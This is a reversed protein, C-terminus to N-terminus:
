KPASPAPPRPNRDKGTVANKIERYGESVEYSAYDYYRLHDSVVMLATRWLIFNEDTCMLLASERNVREGAHGTHATNRGMLGQGSLGPGMGHFGLSTMNRNMRTFEKNIADHDLKILIGNKEV